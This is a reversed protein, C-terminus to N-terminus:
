QLALRSPSESERGTKVTAQSDGLARHLLALQAHLHRLDSSLSTYHRATKWHPRRDLARVLQELAADLDVLCHAILENAEGILLLDVPSDDLLERLRGLSSALVELSENLQNEQDM